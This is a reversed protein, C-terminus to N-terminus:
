PVTVAVGRLRLCLGRDVGHPGLQGVRGGLDHHGVVAVPEELQGGDVERLRRGHEELGAQGDVAQAGQEVAQAPRRPSASGARWSDREWSRRAKTRRSPASRRGRGVAAVSLPASLPWAQPSGHRVPDARSASGPGPPRWRGARRRDPRHVQGAARRYIWGTGPVKAQFTSRWRIVHRRRSPALTVVARYDRLPLGAELVYSFVEGPTREVVRERSKVRGTTFLRVAGPGRAHRRRARDARLLRAAVVRAVDLRRGPARVGRAPGGDDDGDPRDGAAAMPRGGESRNEDGNRGASHVMQYMDPCDTLLSPGPLPQEVGHDLVERRVPQGVLAQAADGLRDPRAM